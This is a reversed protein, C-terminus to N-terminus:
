PTTHENKQDDNPDPNANSVLHSNSESFARFRVGWRLAVQFSVGAPLLHELKVVM